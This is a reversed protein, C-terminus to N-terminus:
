PENLHSARMDMAGNLRELAEKLGIREDQTNARRWDDESADFISVPRKPPACAAWHKVLAEPSLLVGDGMIRRYQAARERVEPGTAGADMLERTCRGLRTRASRDGPAVQWGCVAALADWVDDSPRRPRMPDPGGHGLRHALRQYSTRADPFLEDAVM